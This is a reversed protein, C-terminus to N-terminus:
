TEVVEVRVADFWFEVVAELPEEVEIGFLGFGEGLPHDLGQEGAICRGCQDEGALRAVFSGFFDAPDYVGGDAGDLGQWGGGALEAAEGEGIEDEGEGDVARQCLHAEGGEVFDADAHHDLQALHVFMSVGDGDSNLPREDDAGSFRKGEM